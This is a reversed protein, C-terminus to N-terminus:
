AVTTEEGIFLSGYNTLRDLFFNVAKVHLELHEPAYDDSLRVAEDLTDAVLVKGNNGWSLEAVDRTPLVRLQKELEAIARRAFGESL